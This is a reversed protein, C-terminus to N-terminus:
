SIQALLKACEDAVRSDPREEGPMTAWGQKQVYDGKGYSSVETLEKLKQARDPDAKFRVVCIPALRKAVADSAIGEAAYRAKGGTTWGGWSFGVVITAVMTAVCAWFLLRKTPRSQRWRDGISPASQPM